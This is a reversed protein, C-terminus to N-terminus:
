HHIAPSPSEPKNIPDTQELAAFVKVHFTRIIVCHLHGGTDAMSRVAGVHKDTGNLAQLVSCVAKPRVTM